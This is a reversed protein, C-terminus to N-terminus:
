SPSSACNTSINRVWVGHLCDGVSLTNQDTLSQVRTQSDPCLKHFMHTLHLGATFFITYAQSTKWRYPPPLVSGEQEAPQLSVGSGSLSKGLYVQRSPHQKSVPCPYAGRPRCSVNYWPHNGGLPHPASQRRNCEM